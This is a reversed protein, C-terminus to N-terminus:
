GVVSFEEHLGEKLEKVIKKFRRHEMRKMTEEVNQIRKQLGEVKELINSLLGKVTGGTIVGFLAVVSALRELLGQVDYFSVFKELSDRLSKQKNSTEEVYFNFLEPRVSLLKSKRELEDLKKLVFASEAFSSEGAFYAKIMAVSQEIQNIQSVLYRERELELLDIKNKLFVFEQKDISWTKAKEEELFVM